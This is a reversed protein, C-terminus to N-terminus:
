NLPGSVCHKVNGMKRLSTEFSMIQCVFKEYNRYDKQKFPISEVVCHKIFLECFNEAIFDDVKSTFKRTEDIPVSLYESLFQFVQFFM